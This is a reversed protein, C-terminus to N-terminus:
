YNFAVYNKQPRDIIDVASTIGEAFRGHGTVIIGTAM